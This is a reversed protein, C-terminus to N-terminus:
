NKSSNLCSFERFKERELGPNWTNKCNTTSSKELSKPLTASFPSKARKWFWSDRTSFTSSRYVAWSVSEASRAKAKGNRNPFNLRRTSPCISWISRRSPNTTLLGKQMSSHKRQFQAFSLRTTPSRFRNQLLAKASGTWYLTISATKTLSTEM